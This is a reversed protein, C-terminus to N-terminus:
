LSDLYSVQDNIFHGVLYSSSAIQYFPGPM